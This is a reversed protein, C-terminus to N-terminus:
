CMRVMRDRDGRLELAQVCVRDFRITGGRAQLPVTMRSGMVNVDYVCAFIILMSYSILGFSDIILNCGSDVYYM